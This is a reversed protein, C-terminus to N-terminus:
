YDESKMEEDGEDESVLAVSVIKDNKSTKLLTVGQTNRAIVSIQSVPCRVLTGQATILMITDADNVPFSAAVNGNRASTIINIIGSGGRGTVRYEYASSRKGYGNETVTLIFQEAKAYESIEEMSLSTTVRKSATTPDIALAKRTGLPIKLYEEKKESDVDIGNLISMSVLQDDAALRIGRIGDSSRGKFVRVETVPFRICKGSKASLMVHEDEKCLKVSVLRDNEELDMAIKGNSRISEFDELSNRRINGSLTAFMMYSGETEELPLMSTITENPALPLLNVLARGKAQANGLPLKYVKLKYVKGLNSFFLVPTHTNAVFMETTFDEDRMQLAAKGVGGRRQTRYSSLNCRKIYGKHTVTVVMDEKPILDEENYDFESLEIQTRRPVAFKAKVEQCERDIIQLIKDTSGLIEIYEQIESALELLENKIKSQELGTLRQLKMDLIAQAQAYTFKCTSGTVKNHQDGVLDIYKEVDRAEWTRALLADRAANADASAKIIRIVEDINNTAIFLGILLHARGRIKDLLFKTRRYVVIKRFEVFLKIVELVNMVRPKGHDLALMNVGFSTQLPTMNYLSNLVVDPVADRKLEIVVRIGKKNSEDRLDSIGELQKDRVLDAIKEVMSAKNILYPVETIIIAQRNGIEEIVARGRMLVSGRGTTIASTIGSKGMIIGATPFDPGQVISLVDDHTIDPNKIYLSCADLIEGLNFPPINTAMGVAIGGSGNILLNPFRAPLVSPERDSNDYNDQFSVADKDIDELLLHASEALRSETYRM